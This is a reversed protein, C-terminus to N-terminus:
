VFKRIKEKAEMVSRVFFIRGTRNSEHIFDNLSNSSSDTFDGVFFKQLIEGASNRVNKIEIEGSHVEAITVGGNDSIEITM